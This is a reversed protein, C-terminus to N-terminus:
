VRERRERRRRVFGRTDTSIGGDVANLGIFGLDPHVQLLAHPV